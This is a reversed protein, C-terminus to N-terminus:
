PALSLFQRLIRETLGWIVHEGHHLSQVRRAGTALQLEIERAVGPARLAEVPVWFAEAVEPSTVVHAEGGLAFVFPSIIIPPLVPTRPHLEDLEGMLRGHAGLDIGTEERTERIATAALSDDGHEQRGGPLAVHGSWPDGEWTARKILLMELERAPAERLILAVAARREGPALAVRQPEHARLALAIRSLRDDTM